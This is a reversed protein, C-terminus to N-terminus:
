KRAINELEVVMAESRQEALIPMVKSMPLNLAKQVDFVSGGAINMNIKHWFFKKEHAARAIQASNSSPAETKEEENDSKAAYLVGNFRKYLYIDRLEYYKTIANFIIGMELDSLLKLHVNEKDKDANNLLDEDAPRIVFQALLKLKKNEDITESSIIQEIIQFHGLSINHIDEIHKFEKPLETKKFSNRIDRKQLTLLITSDPEEIKGERYDEYNSLTIKM